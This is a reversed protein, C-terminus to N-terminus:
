AAPRNSSFAVTALRVFLVIAVLLGLTLTALYPWPAAIVFVNAGLLLASAIPVATIFFLLFRSTDEPNESVKARGRRLLRFIPLPAILLWSGSVVRWLLPGSIDSSLLLAAVVAWMAVAVSQRILVQFRLVDVQRWDHTSRQSLAAVIGSFGAVGISLEAILALFDGVTL